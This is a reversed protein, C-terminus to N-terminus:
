HYYRATALHHRAYTSYVCSTRGSTGPTGVAAGKDCPASSVRATAPTLLPKYLRSLLRFAIPPREEDGEIVPASSPGHSGMFLTTAGPAVLGLWGERRRGPGCRLTGGSFDKISDRQTREEEREVVVMGAGDKGVVKM